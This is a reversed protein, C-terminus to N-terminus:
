DPSPVPVREPAPHEPRRAPPPYREAIRGDERLRVRSPSAQGLPVAVRDDGTPPSPDQPPEGGGGGRRFRRRWPERGEDDLIGWVLMIGGVVHVFFVISLALIEELQGAPV